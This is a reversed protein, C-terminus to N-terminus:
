LSPQHLDLNEILSSRSWPIQSGGTRLIVNLRVRREVEHIGPEDSLLAEALSISFPGIGNVGDYAVGGPQSSYFVYTGALGFAPVTTDSMAFTDRCCDLVLIKQMLQDSFVSLIETESILSTSPDAHAETGDLPTFYGQGNSFGGHGAFYLYVLDSGSSLERLKLLGAKITSRTPNVLLWADFGIKALAAAVLKADNVPSLLRNPGLYDSVGVCLATRQANNKSNTFGQAAWCSSAGNGVVSGLAGSFLKRRSILTRM